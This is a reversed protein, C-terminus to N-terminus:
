LYNPADGGVAKKWAVGGGKGCEGVRVYKGWALGIADPHPGQLSQLTMPWLSM